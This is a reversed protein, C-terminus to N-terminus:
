QAGYVDTNEIGWANIGREIKLRGNDGWGKGWSNQVNWYKTGDAAEGYGVIVLAHGTVKSIDRFYVAMNEDYDKEYMPRSVYRGIGTVVIGNLTWDATDYAALYAVVAGRKNDIWGMIQQEGSLRAISRGFRTNAVASADACRVHRQGPGGPLLCRPTDPSGCGTACKALASFGPVCKADPVGGSNTGLQLGRATFDGECKTSSLDILSQPSVVWDAVDGESAICSRQEARERMEAQSLVLAGSYAWCSGCAGQDLPPPTDLLVTDNTVPLPQDFVPVTDASLLAGIRDSLKITQFPKFVAGLYATAAVLGALVVASLVRLRPSAPSLLYYVNLAVLVGSLTVLFWWNGSNIKVVLIQTTMLVFFGVVLLIYVGAYLVAIHHM